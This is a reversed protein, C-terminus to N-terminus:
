ETRKARVPAYPVLESLGRRELQLLLSGSVCDEESESSCLTGM